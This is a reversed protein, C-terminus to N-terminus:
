ATHQQRLGGPQWPVRARPAARLADQPRQLERHRVGPRLRRRCRQSRASREPVDPGRRRAREGDGADQGVQRTLCAAGAGAQLALTCPPRHQEALPATTPPPATSKWGCVATALVQV